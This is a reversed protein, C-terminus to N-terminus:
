AKVELRKVARELKPLLASVDAAVTGTAYRAAEASDFVARAASQAADDDSLQRLVEERTLSGAEATDLPSAAERLAGIGAKFFAECDGRRAATRAETLARRSAARARRRRLIEPHAALHEKRRRWGWLLLLLVPPVIQAYLFTGLLSRPSGSWAGSKEALGTLAPEAERPPERPTVTDSKTVDGAPANPSPKVLIPQPPVSVDVFMSKEPDFYAFPLAPTGKRGERKPILTYTFTKAAGQGTEDVEIQSTPRYTTWDGGEPLEPPPVSEINGAGRLSV